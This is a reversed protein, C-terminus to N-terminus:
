ARAPRKFADANPKWEAEIRIKMPYVLSRDSKNCRSGSRNCCRASSTIRSAPRIAPTKVSTRRRGRFGLREAAAPSKRNEPEARIEVRYPGFNSSAYTVPARLARTM